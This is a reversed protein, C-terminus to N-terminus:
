RSFQGAQHAGAFKGIAEGVAEQHDPALARPHQWERLFRRLGHDLLQRAPRQLYQGEGVGVPVVLTVVQPHFQRRLRLPAVGLEVPTFQLVVMPSPTM